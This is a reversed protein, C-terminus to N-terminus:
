NGSGTGSGNAFLALCKWGMKVAWAAFIVGFSGGWKSEVM